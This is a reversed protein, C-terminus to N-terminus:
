LYKALTEKLKKVDVPKAVHDDMGAEMSKKRDEEFANASLAIIPIHRDPYMERIAKTAQYGDMVPMQIDMLIFDYFDIGRERLKEIAATGDDASEVVMEEEELIETAIERNMENDEVLLVNKGLFSIEKRDAYGRGDSSVVEGSNPDTYLTEDQLKFPLLVTFTTGVGKKSKVSIDGGLLDVFSKVVSMGLGTGQIGSVTSSKVRTFPDFITKLFEESMGMGNDKVRFEYNGYGNESVSKQIIRLSVTGGPQTYKVANSLVNILVQNLRLKDCIINEDMVDATDMFFDLEKSKVDSQVINRITHMIESLNEPKEDINMKGSEIRSMDLVDNILSLLHDSSQGIKGLYDQLVEKNDIHSAALGTYGIIANMPTRIDHSMNNLFTTKARNASQAMALADELQKQQDALMANMQIIEKQQEDAYSIGLVATELKGDRGAIAHVSAKLWVDGGKYYPSRYIFEKKGGTGLLERYGEETEFKKFFEKASDDLGACFREMTKRYPLFQPAGELMGSAKIVKMKDAFINIAYIADFDGILIDRVQKLLINRDDEVVGMLVENEDIRSFTARHWLVMSSDASRIDHKERDVEWGGSKTRAARVASRFEVSYMPEKKLREAITEFNFEREMMERDSVYVYRRVFNEFNKEMNDSVWLTERVDGLVRLPVYEGTKINIRYATTFERIFGDVIKRSQEAMVSAEAQKKEQEVVATIDLFGFAAHDDDAGRIVQMRYVKEVGGSIDRMVVSYAGEKRLRARITEPKVQEYMMERDDPIVEKSIYENISILYDNRIPYDRELDKTRRLIACSGDNLDVYYASVYSSIFYDSVALSQELKKQYDKETRVREDVDQFGVAVMSVPSDPNGEKGVIYDQYRYEGDVLARYTLRYRNSHSLKKRIYGYDLLKRFQPRDDPHVITEAYKELADRLSGERILKQVVARKKPTSVTRSEGTDLNLAFISIYDDSLISVLSNNRKMEETMALQKRIEADKVGFGMVVEDADDTRVVKMETYEGNNNIYYKVFSTVGKLHERIYKVSFVRRMEEKEDECVASDVYTNYAKTYDSRRFTDGFMGTIRGSMKAVYLSADSLKVVYVSSYEAALANVIKNYQNIQERLELEHELEANKSRAEHRSLSLSFVKTFSQLTDREMQTFKHYNVVYHIAIYGGVEGNVYLIRTLSSKIPCKHYTPIGEFGKACDEMETVGNRYMHHFPDLLECQQCYEIPVAWTKEIEPSNVMVRVEELDRYIVQDCGLMVRLRDAFTRLFEIPDGEHDAFYSLVDARFQSHKLQETTEALEKKRALEELEAERRVQTDVNLLGAIILEPKDPVNAFKFRYYEETGDWLTRLVFEYAGREAIAKQVIDTSMNRYLLDRDEPCIIASLLADFKRNGTLAPDLTAEVSRYKESARYIVLEHTQDNICSIFDYDNAMASIIADNELQKAAAKEAKAKTLYEDYVSQFVEALRDFSECEVRSFEHYDKIYHIAMYGYPEGEHYVLRTYASKVPCKEYVPVGHAGKGCDNMITFGDRYVPNHIDSHPCNACYEAPIQGIKEMETSNVIIRETGAGRYIIQDANTLARLKEAMKTLLVHPEDSNSVLLELIEARFQTHMQITQEPIQTGKSM